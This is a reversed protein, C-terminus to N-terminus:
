ALQVRQMLDWLSSIWVSAIRQIAIVANCHM